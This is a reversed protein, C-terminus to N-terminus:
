ADIRGGNWGVVRWDSLAERRLADDRRETESLARAASRTPRAASGEAASVSGARPAQGGRVFRVIRDAGYVALGIGLAICIAGGFMAATFLRGIM